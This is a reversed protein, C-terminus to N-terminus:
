IIVGVGGRAGERTAPEHMTGSVVLERTGAIRGPNGSEPFDQLRRVAAVIREDVTIAALPNDVEIHTLIDDRDSLAFASWFLTV